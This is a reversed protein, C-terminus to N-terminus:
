VVKDYEIPVNPNMKKFEAIPCWELWKMNKGVIRVEAFETLIDQKHIADYVPYFIRRVYDVNHQNGNITIVLM